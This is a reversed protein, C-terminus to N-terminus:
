SELFVESLISVLFRLKSGSITAWADNFILTRDPGWFICAQSPNALMISVTTKLSQAWQDIPGLPTSAWDYELVRKSVPSIVPAYSLLTSSPSAM